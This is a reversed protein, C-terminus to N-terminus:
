WEEVAVARIPSGTLGKVKLPIGMFFFRTKSLQDLNAINEMIGIDKGLLEMHAPRRMDSTTDANALDLGVSKIGKSSLWKAAEEDLGAAQHFGPENWEGPWARIIVIDGKKIDEGTEKLRKKLIDVTIPQEVPKASIDILVAEGFTTDLDVEDITKGDEVFHFPADLHTGSHDSMLIMKSAFGKAPPLYRSASFSHTVFDIITVKPHAPFSQLGEYLQVTLDIIKMM